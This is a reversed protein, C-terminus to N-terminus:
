MWASSSTRRCDRSAATHRWTTRSGRAAPCSGATRGCMVQAERLMALDIAMYQEPTLGKPLATPDLVIWGADTLVTRAIAFEREAAPNGTIRGSLYCVPKTTQNTM